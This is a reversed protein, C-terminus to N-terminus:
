FMKGFMGGISGGAQAGAAGGGVPALYAGIGGGILSGIGGGIMSQRNQRNQSNLYNNFDNQQRSYFDQQRQYATNSDTLNYARSLADQGQGMYQSNLGQQGAMYNQALLPSQQAALQQGAQLVANGQGSSFQRGNQAFSANAADAAQSLIQGNNQQLINGFQSQQQGLRSQMAEPTGQLYQGIQYPDITGATVYPNLFQHEADTGNRGLAQQFIRNVASQDYTNPM